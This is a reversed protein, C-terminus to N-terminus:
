NFTVMGNDSASIMICVSNYCVCKEGVKVVCLLLLSLCKLGPNDLIHALMVVSSSPCLYLSIVPTYCQSLVTLPGEDAVRATSYNRCPQTM